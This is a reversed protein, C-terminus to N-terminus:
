GEDEEGGEVESDPMQAMYQPDNRMEISDGALERLVLAHLDRVEPTSFICDFFMGDEHVVKMRFHDVRDLVCKLGAIPLSGLDIGSLTKCTVERDTITMNSRVASVSVEVEVPKPDKARISAVMKKVRAIVNERTSLTQTEARVPEGEYGEDTVPIAEVAVACGVDDATAFFSPLTAGVIPEWLTGDRTRYWQFRVARCSELFGQAMMALGHHQEGAIVLRVVRPQLERRYGVLAGSRAAEQVPVDEEGDGGAEAPAGAAMRANRRAEKERAKAIKEQEADARMEAQMQAEMQRREAETIEARVPVDVLQSRVIDRLRIELEDEFKQEKFGEIIFAALVDIISSTANLLVMATLLTGFFASFTPLGISGSPIFSLRVGYPVRVMFFTEPDIPNLGTYWMKSGPTRFTGKSVPYVKITLWDNLNFPDLPWLEEYFNQYFMVCALEIGTLRYNPWPPGDGGDDLVNEADLDIGALNLLDVVEITVPAGPAFTYSPFDGLWEEGVVDGPSITTNMSSRTQGWSTTYTGMITVSAYEAAVPLVSANFMLANVYDDPYYSETSNISTRNYYYQQWYTYIWAGSYTKEYFELPEYYMACENNVYNRGPGWTYNTLLTDCYPPLRSRNYLSLQNQLSGETIGSSVTVVPAEKTMYGHYVVMYFLIYIGVGANFTRKMAGLRWDKTKVVKETSYAFLDEYLTDMLDKM